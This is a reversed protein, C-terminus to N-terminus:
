LFYIFVTFSVEFPEQKEVLDWTMSNTAWKPLYYDGYIYSEIVYYVSLLPFVRYNFMNIKLYM